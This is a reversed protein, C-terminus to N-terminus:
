LDMSFIRVVGEKVKGARIKREAIALLVDCSNMFQSEMDDFRHNPNVDQLVESTFHCAVTQGDVLARYSYGDLTVVGFGPFVIDM